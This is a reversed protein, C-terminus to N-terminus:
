RGEQELHAALELFHDAERKALRFYPDTHSCHSAQFEYSLALALCGESTDEPLPFRSTAM